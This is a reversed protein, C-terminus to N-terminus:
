PKPAKMYEVEPYFSHYHRVGELIFHVEKRLFYIMAGPVLGSKFCRLTLQFTRFCKVRLCLEGGTILYMFYQLM